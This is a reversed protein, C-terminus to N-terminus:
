RPRCLWTYAGGRSSMPARGPTSSRSISRVLSFDKQQPAPPARMHISSCSPERILRLRVSSAMAVPASRMATPQGKQRTMSLSPRVALCDSPALSSMSTTSMAWISRAETRSAGSVAPVVSDCSCACASGLVATGAGCSPWSAFPAVGSGGLAASVAAVAAATSSAPSSGSATSPRSVTASWFEAGDQSDSPVADALAAGDHSLSVGCAAGTSAFSSGAVAGESAAAAFEAGDHSLSVGCAAGTSAFSSGAAAGDSAAAAFAAGDHSDSPAADALAAGDQSLSVAAAFAAGDHSVLEGAGAPSPSPSGSDGAAPSAM